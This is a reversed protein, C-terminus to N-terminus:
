EPDEDKIRYLELLHMQDEKSLEKLQRRVARTDAKLDSGVDTEPEEDKSEINTLLKVENGKIIHETIVSSVYDIRKEANNQEIERDAIKLMDHQERIADSVAQKIGTLMIKERENEMEILQENGRFARIIESLKSKYLLYAGFAELGIRMVDVLNVAIDVNLNLVVDISGPQISELPIKEPSGSAILSQYTKLTNDWKKLAKSFDVLSETSELDKFILSIIANEDASKKVPETPVYKSLLEKVQILEQENQSIRQYIRDIIPGFQQFYTSASMESDADLKDLEPVTPLRTFPETDKLIIKLDDQLLNNEFSVLM